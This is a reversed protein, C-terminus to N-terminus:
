SIGVRGMSRNPGWSTPIKLFAPLRLLFLGILLRSQWSWDLNLLDESQRGTKSNQTSLNSISSDLQLMWDVIKKRDNDIFWVQFSFISFDSWSELFSSIFAQDIISSCAATTIKSVIISVDHNGVVIVVSFMLWFFLVFSTLVPKALNGPEELKQQGKGDIWGDM